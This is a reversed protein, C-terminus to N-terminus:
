RIGLMGKKLSEDAPKPGVYIQLIANALKASKLAGLTRGNQRATVTGDAALVIDVADGKVFDSTFFSLFTKADASGAFDPVNNAFGEAFAGTIKEKEVKSHLFNMRILKDGPDALLEAPSSVRRMTYLSGIYVKFFLKKRIGYGNLSLTKEQVRVTPDISVGSVEAAFASASLSLLLLVVAWKRMPDERSNTELM